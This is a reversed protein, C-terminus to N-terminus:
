WRTRLLESSALVLATRPRTPVPAPPMVLRANPTSSSARPGPTRSAASQHLRDKTEDWIAAGRLAEEVKQDIISRKKVGRLRLGPLSVDRGFPYTVLDVTHGLELLARIRHYESFPTGRPEFFPEPALMLIRLPRETPVKVFRWCLAGMSVDRRSGIRAAPHDIRQLPPAHAVIAGSHWSIPLSPM